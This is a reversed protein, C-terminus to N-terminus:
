LGLFNIPPGSSFGQRAPNPGRATPQGHMIYVKYFEKFAFAADYNEIWKTFCRRKLHSNSSSSFIGIYKEHHKRISSNRKCQLGYFTVLTVRAIESQLTEAVKTWENFKNRNKCDELFM